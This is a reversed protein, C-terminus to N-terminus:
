QIAQIASTDIYAIIYFVQWVENAGDPNVFIAEHSANLQLITSPIKLTLDTEGQVYYTDPYSSLKINANGKELKIENINVTYGVESEKALTDSAFLRILVPTETVLPDLPQLSLIEFKKWDYFQEDIYLEAMGEGTLIKFPQDFQKLVVQEAGMYTLANATLKGEAGLIQLTWEIIATSPELKFSRYTTTQGSFSFVQCQQPAFLDNNELRLLPTSLPATDAIIHFSLLGMADQRVNAQDFAEGWVVPLIARHWSTVPRVRIKLANAPPSWVLPVCRPVFSPRNPLRACVQAEGMPIGSPPTYFLDLTKGASLMVSVQTKSTSTDTTASLRGPQSGELEVLVEFEGINDDTNLTLSFPQATQTNNFLYGCGLDFTVEQRVLQLDLESTIRDLRPVDLVAEITVDSQTATEGAQYTATLVTNAGIPLHSPIITGGGWVRLVIEQQSLDVQSPNLITITIQATSRGDASIQQSPLDSTLNLTINPLPTQTPIITPAPTATPMPIYTPVQIVKHPPVKDKSSIKLGLLVLGLIVIGILIIKYKYNPYQKLLKM